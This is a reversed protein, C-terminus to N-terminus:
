LTKKSQAEAPENILESLSLSPSIEVSYDCTQRFGLEVRSDFRVKSNSYCM